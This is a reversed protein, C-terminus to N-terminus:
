GDIMTKIQALIDVAVDCKEKLPYSTHEGMAPIFTIKNTTHQFGAGNDALSNLIIADLNKKKIKEKANSLENNTELAFGVLIQSTKKKGLSESILQQCWM